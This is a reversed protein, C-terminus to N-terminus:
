LLTSTRDVSSIYPFLFLPRGSKVYLSEIWSTLQNSPEANSRPKADRWIGEVRWIAAAVESVKWIITKPDHPRPTRWSCPLVVSSISMSIVCGVSTFDHANHPGPLICFPGSSLTPWQLQLTSRDHLLRSDSCKKWPQAPQALQAQENWMMECWIKIIWQNMIWESENRNKVVEEADRPQAASEQIGGLSPNFGSLTVHLLFKRRSSGRMKGCTSFSLSFFSMASMNVCMGHVNTVNSLEVCKVPHRKYMQSGVRGTSGLSDAGLRETFVTAWHETSLWNYLCMKTLCRTVHSVVGHCQFCGLDLRHIFWNM